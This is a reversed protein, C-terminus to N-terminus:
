GTMQLKLHLVHQQFYVSVTIKSRHCHSLCLHMLVFALLMSVGGPLIQYIATQCQGHMNMVCVCVTKAWNSGPLDPNMDQLDAYIPRQWSPQRHFHLCLLGHTVYNVHARLCSLLWESINTLFRRPQLVRSIFYCYLIFVYKDNHQRPVVVIWSPPADALDPWICRHQRPKLM